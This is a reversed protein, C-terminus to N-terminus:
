DKLYNNFQDEIDDDKKKKQDEDYNGAAGRLEIGGAAMAPPKVGNNFTGWYDTNDLESHSIYPSGPGWGPGRLWEDTNHEDLWAQADNATNQQKVLNNYADERDSYSTSGGDATLKDERDKLEQYKANASETSDNEYDGRGNKAKNLDKEYQNVDDVPNGNGDKIVHNANNKATDISAFDDKMKQISGSDIHKEGGMTNVDAQMQNYNNKWNPDDIAPRAKQRQADINLFDTKAKNYDNFGNRNNVLAEFKSMEEKTLPSKKALRLLEDEGGLKKFENYAAENDMMASAYEKQKAVGGMEDYKKAEKLQTWTTEGGSQEFHNAANKKNNAKEWASDGGMKKFSKQDAKLQSIEDLKSQGGEDNFKKVNKSWEEANEVAKHGGKQEYEKALNRMKEADSVAANIDGGNNTNIDNIIGRQKNEKGIQNVAQDVSMGGDNVLHQFRAADADAVRSDKFVQSNLYQDFQDRQSQTKLSLRADNIVSQEKGKFWKSRNIAEPAVDTVGSITRGALPTAMGIIGSAKDGKGWYNYAGQGFTGADSLAEMGWAIKQLKTGHKLTNLGAFSRGFEKTLSLAKMAKTTMLARDAATAARAANMAQLARAGQATKGAFGAVAGAGSGLINLALGFIAEGDIGLSNGNLDVGKSFGPAGPPQDQGCHVFQIAGIGWCTCVCSKTLALQPIGSSVDMTTYQTTVWPTPLMTAQCPVPTLIFTGAALSAALTAAAVAPNLLNWCPGFGDFNMGPVFDTQVLMRNKFKTGIVPRKEFTLHMKSFISGMACKVIANETCVDTLTINHSEKKTFISMDLNKCKALAQEQIAQYDFSDTCFALAEAVAIGLAPQALTIATLIEPPCNELGRGLRVSEKGSNGYGNSIKRLSDLGIAMSKGYNDTTTDYFEKMYDGFGKDQDANGNKGSDELAKAKDDAEQKLKKDAQETVSVKEAPKIERPPTNDSQNPEPRVIEQPKPNKIPTCFADIKNSSEVTTPAPGTPEIKTPPIRAPSTKEESTNGDKKSSDDTKKEKGEKKGTGEKPKSDIKDTKKTEGEKPVSANKKFSQKEKNNTKKEKSEKDDPEKTGKNINNGDSSHSPKKGNGHEESTKNPKNDNKPEKSDKNPKKEDKSEDKEDAKQACFFMGTEEDTSPVKDSNNDIVGDPIEIIPGIDDTTNNNDLVVSNSNSGNQSGGLGNYDDFKDQPLAM